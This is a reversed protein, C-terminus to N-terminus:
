LGVKKGFVRAKVTPRRFPIGRVEFFRHTCEPYPRRNFRHVGTEQSRAFHNAEKGPCVENYRLVPGLEGVAEEQVGPSGCDLNTLRFQACAVARCKHIEVAFGRVKSGAVLYVFCRM